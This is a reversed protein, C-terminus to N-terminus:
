IDISSNLPSGRNFWYIYKKSELIGRCDVNLCPCSQLFVDKVGVLVNSVFCSWERSPKWIIKDM